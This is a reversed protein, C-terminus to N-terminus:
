GGIHRDLYDALDSCTKRMGSLLDGIVGECQGLLQDTLPCQEHELDASVGHDASRDGVTVEHHDALLGVGVVAVDDGGPDALLGRDLGELSCVPMDPQHGVVRCVRRDEAVLRGDHASDHGHDPPDSSATFPAVVYPAPANEAPSATFPPVLSHGTSGTPM